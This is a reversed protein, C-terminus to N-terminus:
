NNQWLKGGKKEVIRYIKKKNDFRKNDMTVKSGSHQRFSLIGAKVTM